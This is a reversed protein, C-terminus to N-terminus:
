DEKMVITSNKNRKVVGTVDFLAQIADFPIEFPPYFYRGQMPGHEYKIENDSVCLYGTKDDNYFLRKIYRNSKTEIVYVTGPEIFGDHSKRLGIVSGPPYGPIMSNGYVRMAAQSDRLLDGIDITSTAHIVANMEMAYQTGAAADADYFPIQIKEEKLKKDAREKYYPVENQQPNALDPYFLVELDSIELERKIKQIKDIKPRMKGDEYMSYARQSVGIADAIEQQSKKRKLREEKLKKGALELQSETM